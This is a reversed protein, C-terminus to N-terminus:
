GIALYKGATDGTMVLSGFEGDDRWRRICRREGVDWIYVEAHESLSMLQNGEGSGGKAWWLAKVGANMKLSGIVQGAGSNWDVLHVYGRRGAVALVEGTPSFATIEM